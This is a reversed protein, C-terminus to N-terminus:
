PQASCMEYRCCIQPGPVFMNFTAYGNMLLAHIVKNICPKEGTLARSYIVHLVSKYAIFYTLVLENRLFYGLIMPVMYLQTYKVDLHTNEGLHM